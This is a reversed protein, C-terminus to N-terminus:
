FSCFLTLRKFVKSHAFSILNIAAKAGPKLIETIKGTQSMEAVARTKVLQKAFNLSIILHSSFM